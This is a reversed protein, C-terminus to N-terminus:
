ESIQRSRDLSASYLPTYRLVGDIRASEFLSIREVEMGAGEPPPMAYLLDAPSTRAMTIHPIFPDQAFEVGEAELRALLAQRLEMLQANEAIGRWIIDKRGKSFRGMGDLEIRFPPRRAALKLAREIAPLEHAAREGLFALTIHYNEPLTLRGKIHAKLEAAERALQSRMTRSVEIGIFLRRRGACAENM